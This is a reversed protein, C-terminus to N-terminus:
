NFIGEKYKLNKSIIYLSSNKANQINNTIGTSFVFKEDENFISLGDEMNLFQLKGDDLLKADIIENFNLELSIWDFDRAKDQTVLTLTIDTQSDIKISRLEAGVFNDFRDLFNTIDKKLLPRM